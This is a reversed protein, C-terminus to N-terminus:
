REIEFQHLLTPLNVRVARFARLTEIRDTPLPHDPFAVVAEDRQPRGVFGVSGAPITVAPGLPAEPGQFRALTLAARTRVRRGWLRGLALTGAAEARNIATWAM